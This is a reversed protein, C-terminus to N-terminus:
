KIADEIDDQIRKPNRYPHMKIPQEGIKLKIIREVGRDAQRGLPLDGFVKECKGFM